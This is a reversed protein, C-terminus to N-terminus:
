PYAVPSIDIGEEDGRGIKFSKARPVLEKVWNKTEGVFVAVSLAMCRQGTAGFTANTLANLTDEKDCDPMVLAHNKAGMNSQVRKGTATGERYVYEGANNGGVFSLAKIDPHKCMQATTDFGGQVVNMVGKPLKIEDLLKCLYEVTGPVKESPKLVFTNGCTIAVPIMWLPIM